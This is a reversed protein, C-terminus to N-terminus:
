GPFPLHWHDSIVGFGVREQAGAPLSLVCPVCRRQRRLQERAHSCARFAGGSAAIASGQTGARVSRVEAPPSPAGTTGARVSRMEAPSSPAGTRVQVCPVCVWQRRYHREPAERPGKIERPGRQPKKQDERQYREPAKRSGRQPREPAERPGRQPRERAESHGREPSVTAEVSMFFHPFRM